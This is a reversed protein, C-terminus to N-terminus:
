AYFIYITKELFVVSGHWFVGVLFNYSFKGVSWGSFIEFLGQRLLINLFLLIVMIVIKDLKLHFKWHMSLEIISVLLDVFIVWFLQWVLLLLIYWLHIIWLLFWAYMEWMVRCIGSIFVLWTYVYHKRKVVFRWTGIKTDNWKKCKLLLNYKRQILYM